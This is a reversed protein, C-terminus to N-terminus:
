ILDKCIKIGQYNFHGLSNTEKCLRNYDEENIMILKKGTKVINDLLIRSKKSLSSYYLEIM